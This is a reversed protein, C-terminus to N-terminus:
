SRAWAMAVLLAVMVTCTIWIVLLQFRHVWESPPPNKRCLWEDLRGRSSKASAKLDRLFWAAFSAVLLSMFGAVSVVLVTEKENRFQSAAAFLGAQLAVSWQLARWGQEKSWRVDQHDMQAKARRDDEDSM